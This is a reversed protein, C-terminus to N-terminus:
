QLAKSITRRRYDARDWKPRYLGSQRFMRDIREADYNCFWALHCVLAQDARSHDGGYASTDGRFLALRKDSQEDVGGIMQAWLLEDDMEDAHQYGERISSVPNDPAPPFWAEILRSIDATPDGSQAHGTIAVFRPAQWTTFALPTAQFKIEGGIRASRGIAKLGARSPSMEWHAGSRGLALIFDAAVDAFICEAPDYVVVCKDLDISAWGDGLMFGLGDFGGKEYAARATEFDTWTSPDNSKAWAGSVQCPVKTWKSEREIYRWLVWRRERRLAEPIGAVHVALAVPRSAATM